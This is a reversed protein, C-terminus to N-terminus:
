NGPTVREGYGPEALVKGDEFIVRGRLVTMVPVGRVKRGEYSTWGCKHYSNAATITTEKAMDLVAIDADSGVALAGKRPYLDVLKAPDTSCLQVVRELSIRGESVANLFLSLYHQVIPSGGPAAYMDKWGIEKEAKTHPSHDTAVLVDASGDVMTEWLAKAHHEPLWTGLIWPGLREINEWSNAMFLLNPNVEGSVPRGAAKAARLMEIGGITAVHLIHMRVGTARQLVLMLAIGSDLNVGELQRGARAYSKYDRGWTDWARQVLLEYISQDHCHVLLPKGTKAVEECIRLLTAHDDIAVGPMHPYDRGVDRMMFIKFATAGAENLAAINDPVTAATNHGFDVISKRKANALHARLKDADTTAPTVNPMDLVTTVGGAAAARTGTTFDEKDTFGPDRLHMHTDVLGPIVTLKSADVHRRGRVTEGPAAIAKIRGGSVVLTGDLWGTPSFIRESRITLEIDETQPSV